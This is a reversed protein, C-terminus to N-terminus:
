PAVSLRPLRVGGQVVNMGAAIQIFVEEYSLTDTYEIM